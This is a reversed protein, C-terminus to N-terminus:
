QTDQRKEWATIGGCCPLFLLEGKSPSSLCHLQAGRRLCGEALSIVHFQVNTLPVSLLLTVVSKSYNVFHLCTLNLKDDGIAVLM